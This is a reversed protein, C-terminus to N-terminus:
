TNRRVWGSSHRSLHDRGASSKRRCWTVSKTCRSAWDLVTPITKRSIGSDTVPTCSTEPALWSGGRLVKVPGKNM